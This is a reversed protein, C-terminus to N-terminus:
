VQELEQEKLKGWDDITEVTKDILKQVDKELRKIDDERGEYQKQIDSIAEHRAQRVMIRGNELKHRMAKVLEM